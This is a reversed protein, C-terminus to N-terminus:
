ARGYGFCYSFATLLKVLQRGDAPGDKNYKNQHYRKGPQGRPYWWWTQVKGQPLTADCDKSVGAFKSGVAATVSGAAVYPLGISRAM